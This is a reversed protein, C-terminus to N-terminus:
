LRELARLRDISEALETRSRHLAVHVQVRALVEELQFPKTVYDAGGVEFAKLKDATATLATLFVVPIHRLEPSAKLRACVEYGNMEPMNVDLLILDPPYGAAAQLAQRGSTVPRVEYRHEGLM